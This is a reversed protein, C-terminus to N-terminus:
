SGIATPDFSQEIVLRISEQKGREPPTVEIGVVRNNYSFEPGTDTMGFLEDTITIQAYSGLATPSLISRSDTTNIEIVPVAWIGSRNDRWYAAYDELTTLLTVSSYDIVKDLHPFASALWDESLVPSSLMTPESTDSLDEESTGGRTWFATAADTADYTIEYNLINGPYTYVFDGNLMGLSNSLVLERVRTQTTEDLYTSIFYEFGNDVNALEQLRQGVSAAETLKYHRDRLVGSMNNDVVIGLEAASAYPSWGAQANSVLGRAISFQDTSTYDLNIDIIRHDFWSELSAGQYEITIPGRPSSRVRMSWIIYTGWIDADRYVHVVTKAPVVRKALTAIDNNTVTLTASFASPVIIRRDFKVNSLELEAVDADSLLNAFRYSYVPM